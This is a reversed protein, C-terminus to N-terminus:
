RIITTLASYRKNPKVEGASFQAFADSVRVAPSTDGAFRFEKPRPAYFSARYYVDDFRPEGVGFLADCALLLAYVGAVAAVIERLISM